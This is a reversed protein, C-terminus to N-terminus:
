QPALAATMKAIQAANLSGAQEAMHLAQRALEAYLHTFRPELASTQLAEIHAAVTAADGRMVPGSLADLTGVREMNHLTATLIPMLAQKFVQADLGARAAIEGSADIVATFYNCAMVCATHYLVKSHSAVAFYRFGLSEFLPKLTALATPEGECFLPTAHADNALLAIAAERTPFTNLPHTSAIAAGKQRASELVSSNLAGALHTVVTHASLHPALAACSASIQEDRVALILISSTRVVHALDDTLEINTDLGTVTSGVAQLPRTGVCVTHGKRACLLAFSLGVKGAGIIGIKHRRNVPMM